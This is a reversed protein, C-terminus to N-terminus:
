SSAGECGDPVCVAGDARPQSQTSQAAGTGDLLQAPAALDATERDSPDPSGCAGGDGADDGDNDPVGAIVDRENAMRLSNVCPPLAMYDDIMQIAEEASWAVQACYGRQTLSFLWGKQAKSLKGRTAKMELLFGHYPGRPEFIIMDPTGNSYGARHLNILQHRRYATGATFCSSLLARGKIYEAVKRQLQRETM